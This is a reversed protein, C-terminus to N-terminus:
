SNYLILRETIDLDKSLIDEVYYIVEKHNNVELHEKLSKGTTLWLYIIVYIPYFLFSKKYMRLLEEVNEDIYDYIKVTDKGKCIRHLRGAYQKITGKWYIPM